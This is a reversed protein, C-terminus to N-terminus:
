RRPDHRQPRARPDHLYPTTVVVAERYVGPDILVLGGPEARDVAEQITAADPPRPRDGGARGPDPDPGAGAGAAARRGRRDHRDDGRGPDTSAASTRTSARRTSRTRSSAARRSRGRVGRVTTPRSRTGRAGTTRGSSPRAPRSASRDRHSCTTSRPSPHVTRTTTPHSRRSPPPAPLALLAAIALATALRRMAGSGLMPGHGRLSEGAQVGAEEVELLRAHVHM